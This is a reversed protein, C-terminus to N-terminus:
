RLCLPSSVTADYLMRILGTAVPATMESALLLCVEQLETAATLTVCICVYCVINQGAFIASYYSCLDELTLTWFFFWQM